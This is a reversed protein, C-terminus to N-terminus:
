FSSRYVPYLRPSFSLLLISNKYLITTLFIVKNKSNLSSKVSSIMQKAIQDGDAKIWGKYLSPFENQKNYNYCFPQMDKIQIAKPKSNAEEKAWDRNQTYSIKELNKKKDKLLENLKADSDSKSGFNAQPKSKFFDFLFLSQHKPFKIHLKNIYAKCSILFILTIKIFLKM